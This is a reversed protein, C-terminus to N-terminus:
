RSPPSSAREATSIASRSSLRSARGSLSDNSSAGRGHETPHFRGFEAGAWAWFSMENIPCYYPVDETEDRVVSAAAAAFSAFRDIFSSSWVDIDDPYGYHCLDWIVQVGFDRSARLMPLFSSWDYKGANREILPWRLGDRATAINHQLIANYDAAVHRDHGTAAL